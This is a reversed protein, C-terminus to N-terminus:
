GEAGETIARGELCPTLTVARELARRLDAADQAGYFKEFRAQAEQWLPHAAEYRAAGAATLRLARTRGDKGPGIALLGERELPRVARGMTTRDMVMEAALENVSLPGLRALKSLISYQTARLGVRGLAQDYLQTIQRSAQRVALCNCNRADMGPLESALPMSYRLLRM